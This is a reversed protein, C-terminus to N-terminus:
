VPRSKGSRAPPPEAPFCWAGEVAASGRSSHPQPAAWTLPVAAPGTPPGLRALGLGGPTRGWGEPTESGLGVPAGTEAGGIDGDWGRRHGRGPGEGARPEARRSWQPATVHRGIAAGGSTLPPEPHRRRSQPPATEAERLARYGDGAARETGLREGSHQALRWPRRSERLSRVLAEPPFPICEGPACPVKM